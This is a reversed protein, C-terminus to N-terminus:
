SIHFRIQLLGQHSKKQKFERPIIGSKLMANLQEIEEISKAQAIAM